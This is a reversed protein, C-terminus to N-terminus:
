RHFVQNLDGFTICILGGYPLSAASPNVSAAAKNICGMLDCSVMSVEEIAIVAANLWKAAKEDSLATQGATNDLAGQGQDTSGKKKKRPVDTVSHVTAGGVSAAQKGQFAVTIIRGPQVVGRLAPCEILAVIAKLVYSKGSGAGGSVHLRLADATPTGDRAIWASGFLFFALRQKRNLGFEDAIRRVAEHQQISARGVDTKAVIDNTAKRRNDMSTKADTSLGAQLTSRLHVLYPEMAASNYPGSTSEVDPEDAPTSAATTSADRAKLIADQIKIAAKASATDEGHQIHSADATVQQPTRGSLLSSRPLRADNSASFGAAICQDKAAAVYSLVNHANYAPPMVNTGTTDDVDFAANLVDGDIDSGDGGGQGAANAARAEERRQAIEDDAALRQRLMGAINLRMTMSRSDWQNSQETRRMAILWSADDPLRLDDTTFFSKFMCLLLQAHREPQTDQRPMDRM